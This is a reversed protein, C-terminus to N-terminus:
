NFAVLQIKRKFLILHIDKNNNNNKNNFSSKGVVFFIVLFLNFKSVSSDFNGKILRDHEEFSAKKLSIYLEIM